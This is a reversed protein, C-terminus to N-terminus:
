RHSFLSTPQSRAGARMLLESRGSSGTALHRDNELCRSGVNSKAGRDRYVLPTTRFDYSPPSDTFFDQVVGKIFAATRSWARKM